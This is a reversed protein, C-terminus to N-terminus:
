EEEGEEDMIFAGALRGLTMDYYEEQLEYERRVKELEEKLRALEEKLRANENLLQMYSLSM